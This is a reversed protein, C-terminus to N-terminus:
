IPYRAARMRSRHLALFAAVSTLFAILAFVKWALTGPDTRTKPAAASAPPAVPEAEVPREPRRNGSAVKTRAPEERRRNGAGPDVEAMEQAAVAPDAKPKEVM